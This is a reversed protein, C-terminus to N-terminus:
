LARDAALGTVKLQGAVTEIRVGGDATFDAAAHAAEDGRFRWRVTVDQGRQITPEAPECAGRLLALERRLTPVAPVQARFMPNKAAAHRLAGEAEDLLGRELAYLGLYIADEASEPDSARERVRYGVRAPCSGW